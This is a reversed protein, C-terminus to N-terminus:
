VSSMGVSRAIRLRPTWGVHPHDATEPIHLRDLIRDHQGDAREVADVDAVLDDEPPRDLDGPGAARAAGHDGELGMRADDEPTGLFPPQQGRRRVLEFQNLGFPNVHADRHLEVTGEGINIGLGEDGVQQDGLEADPGDDHPGRVPESFVSGAVRSKQLLAALSEPEIDLDDIRDTNVLHDDATAHNAREDLSTLEVLRGREKASGIRQEPGNHLARGAPAAHAVRGGVEVRV